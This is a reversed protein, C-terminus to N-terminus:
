PNIQTTDGLIIPEEDDDGGGEFPQDLINVKQPETDRQDCSSMGLAVLLIVVFIYKFHKM